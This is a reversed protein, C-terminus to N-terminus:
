KMRSKVDAVWIKVNKDDPIGKLYAEYQELACNLDQIYIDCLVGYNKHAPLYDPYLQLLTEYLKQADKYRGTKRYVLGLENLAVPHNPNLKLAKKLSKEAETFKKTRAYAIGLDIFPGTFKSTKGTVARLLKIADPYNEQKLLAVAQLFQERIEPDVPYNETIEIVGKPLCNQQVQAPPSQAGQEKKPQATQSSPKAPTCSTKTQQAPAAKTKSSEGHQSGTSVCASAVFCLIAPVLWQLVSSGIIPSNSKRGSQKM